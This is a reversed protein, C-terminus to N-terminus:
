AELLYYHGTKTYYCFKKLQKSVIIQSKYDVNHTFYIFSDYYDASEKMLHPDFEFGCINKLFSEVMLRNDLPVHFDNMQSVGSNNGM